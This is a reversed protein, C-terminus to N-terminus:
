WACKDGSHMGEKAVRLNELCADASVRSGTSLRRREQFPLKGRAGLMAWRAQDEPKSSFHSSAHLPALGGNRNRLTTTPHTTNPHQQAAHFQQCEEPLDPELVLTM